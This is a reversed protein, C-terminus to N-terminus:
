TVAVWRWSGNYFGIKNGTADYVMAARGTVTTPTGTATGSCVAFYVFGDTASTSLAGGNMIVSQTGGKFNIAPSYTNASSGSATAVGTYVIVDGPTGTGTAGPGKISANAAAATNTGTANQFQLTQAVPSATDGAGFQLTAAAGRRLYLDATSSPDGTASWQIQGNNYLAIASTSFYTAGSGLLTTGTVSLSNAGITAGGLALTGGQMIGTIDAATGNGFGITNVGIRSIGTDAPNNWGIVQTTPTIISIKM